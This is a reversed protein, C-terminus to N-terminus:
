VLLFRVADMTGNVLTGNQTGIKSGCDSVSLIPEASLRTCWSCVYSNDSTCHKRNRIHSMTMIGRVLILVAITCHDKVDGFLPDM